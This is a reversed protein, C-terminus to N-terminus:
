EQCQGAEVSCARERANRQFLSLILAAWQPEDLTKSTDFDSLNFIKTLDSPAFNVRPLETIKVGDIKVGTVPNDPIIDNRVCWNLMSHLRSFYKDNVTTPDLAPFPKSRAKNAKIADPLQMDPFRKTYNAPTEAPARKFAHMGQRTIRHVPRAEDLFEDLMRVTVKCEYNTAPTASREKIFIPLIEFLPKNSDPCM